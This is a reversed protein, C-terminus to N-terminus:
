KEAGPLAQKCLDRNIMLSQDLYAQLKAESSRIEGTREYFGLVDQCFAHLPGGAKMREAITKADHLHVLDRYYRLDREEVRSRFFLEKRAVELSEAENDKGWEYARFWANLVKVVIDPYRRILYDQACLGEPMGGKIDATTVAEKGHGRQHAFTAAPEWTVAADVTGRVFANAAEQGAMDALEFDNLQLGAQQLAAALFYHSMTRLECAIRKGRLKPDDLGSYAPKLIIKDMGQSSATECVLSVPYGLAARYVLDGVRSASMHTHHERRCFADSMARANPFVLVRVDLNEDKFFGKKEAVKLPIWTYQAVCGILVTEPRPPDQSPAAVSTAAFILRAVLAVSLHTRGVM